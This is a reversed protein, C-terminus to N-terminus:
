PGDADAAPDDAEALLWGAVLALLLLALLLLEDALSNVRDTPARAQAPRPTTDPPTNM